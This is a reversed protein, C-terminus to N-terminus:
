LRYVNNHIYMNIKPRKTKHLYFYFLNVRIVLLNLRSDVNEQLFPTTVCGNLNWMSKLLLTSGDFLFHIAGNYLFQLSTLEMDNIRRLFANLAHNHTTVDFPVCTIYPRRNFQKFVIDEQPRVM